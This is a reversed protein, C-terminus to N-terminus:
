NHLRARLKSNRIEPKSTPATVFNGFRERQWDARWRRQQGFAPFGFFCSREFEKFNKSARLYGCCEAPVSCM